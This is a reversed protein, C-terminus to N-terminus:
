FASLHIEIQTEFRQYLQDGSDEDQRNGSKEVMDYGDIQNDNSQDSKKAGIVQIESRTLPQM